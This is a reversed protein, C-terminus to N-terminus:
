KSDTSAGGAADDAASRGRRQEEIRYAELLEETLTRADELSSRATDVAGSLAAPDDASRSREQLERAKEQLRELLVQFAPSSESREASRTAEGKPDAKPDLPQIPGSGAAGPIATM